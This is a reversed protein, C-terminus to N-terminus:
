RTFVDVSARLSSLLALTPPRTTATCSRAHEPPLPPVVSCINVVSYIVVPTGCIYFCFFAPLGPSRPPLMHAFAQPHVRM